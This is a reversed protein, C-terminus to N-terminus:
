DHLKIDGARGGVEHALSLGTDISTQTHIGGYLRSIGADEAAKFLSPFTRSALNRFDYTHDTFSVNDGLVGTLAQMVSGTVLAHAAPYEPHPPTVIFPMWTSDIFKRIYTVPRILNYSYKSRFCVITADREAIGAKAFAEAAVPLTVKKQELAQLIISIHHGAPTYGVGNGQDVWYLATSKQDATLAKSVDYVNKIVKYFNSSTDESYANPFAPAVATLNSSFYTRASSIYPMVGNLFAPPTPVWAGPFVTPVYGTNSPNFNDTLYWDHIATAISQGFAQSRNFTASDAATYLKQNYTKELSDISALNATTLGTYFYRLMGAMAANASVPGDYSVSSQIAPMQPMQNLKVSLSVSNKFEFRASEYLGIGIYGFYVGNLASNRELLIRLQLNYWDYVVQPDSQKVTPINITSDNKKCRTNVFMATIILAILSIRKM